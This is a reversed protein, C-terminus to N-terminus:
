RCLGEFNWLVRKFVRPISLSPALRVGDAGGRVKAVWGALALAWPGRGVRIRM